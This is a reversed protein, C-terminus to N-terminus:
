GHQEGLKKIKITRFKGRHLEIGIGQSQLSAQLSALRKSLSIPNYPWDKSRQAGVSVRANLQALLDSPTGSWEQEAMGEAFELIAAALTNEQLSDRQGQQVADAYEQQFLGPSPLDYVMEMAALWKVFDYMRQPAVVEARPLYKFIGAILDFLGRLIAPLDEEFERVLQAESKRGREDISDLQIPLCRQALDSEEVFSHIGNLVIAVHLRTVQQEADTYMQRKTIDGGTSAVCLLDSMYPKIDRINDYFLAHSNQSAIALDEGNRPFVQVGVRGPDILQQIIKCLFSKGSGQNGQLVLIVYKSSDVKPHALTYSIWATLLMIQVPHINLYKDLLRLNGTDTPLVMPLMTSTRYFLVESGHGIVQVGSATIRIRTHNKDGLDIEIGGPVQAVRYWVDAFVGATETDAQLMDNLEAIDVKRLTLGSQHAHQRILHNAARGGLPLAYKNGADDMTLFVKGNRSIVRRLDRPLNQLFSKQPSEPSAKVLPPLDKGSSDIDNM